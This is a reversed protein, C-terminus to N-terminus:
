IKVPSDMDFDYKDCRDEYWGVVFKELNELYENISATGIAEKDADILRPQTAKDQDFVEYKLAIRDLLERWGTIDHTQPNYFIKIM